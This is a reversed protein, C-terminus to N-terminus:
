NSKAPKLEATAMKSLIERSPLRESRYVSWGTSSYPTSDIKIEFVKRVPQTRTVEFIRAWQYDAPIDDSPIQDKTQIRGGDTVLVNGTTPLVDADCYYPSYFTEEKPGYEWIQEVTRTNENVRFEVARSSNQTAPRKPEPPVARYNGNDYMMLTGQSTLKVGHQHYPWELEGHPKLLKESWPDRWRQPSGLIWRLERSKRDVKVVCDQHRLSVIIEDTAEDYSLSNAHAWDRSPTGDGKRYHTAWFASLSGYGIRQLDLLDFLHIRDVVSGDPQFEVVLDGVVDAPATRGDPESEKIPFNPVNRLETSLALFNGNPLELIEHHFSDIPVPIFTEDPAAVLGTAWWQRRRRGFLDIEYLGYFKAGNFLIRGNSLMRLDSIRLKSRFYWVVDGSEDVAIIYGYDHIRVGDEWRNTAFITVGPEMHEPESILTKLPPFDEPLPPTKITTPKSWQIPKGDASSVRTRVKHERDPKLGWLVVSHDTKPPGDEVVTWQDVGDDIAITAITPEATEFEALAVLPADAEASLVVNPGDVLEAHEEVPASRDGCGSCELVVLLVFATGLQSWSASWDHNPRSQFRASALRASASRM